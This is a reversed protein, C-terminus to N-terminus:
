NMELYLPLRMSALYWSRDPPRRRPLLGTRAQDVQARRPRGVGGDGEGCPPEGLALSGVTAASRPAYRVRAGPDATVSQWSERKDEGFTVVRSPPPM